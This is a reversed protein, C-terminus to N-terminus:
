MASESLIRWQRGRQMTRTTECALLEHALIPSKGHLALDEFAIPDADESRWVGADL